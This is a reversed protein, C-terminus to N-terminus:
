AGVEAYYGRATVRVPGSSAPSGTFTPLGGTYFAIADSVLLREWSRLREFRADIPNKWHDPDQVAAFASRLDEETRVEGSVGYDTWGAPFSTQAAWEARDADLAAAINPYRSAFTQTM